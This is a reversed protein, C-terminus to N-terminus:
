CEKGVRREESRTVPREVVAGDARKLPENNVPRPQNNNQQQQPRPQNNNQPKNQNNFQPKPQNNNALKNQNNNGSNNNNNYSPKNNQQPRNQNQPRSQNNFQPKPQNNLQPKPQAPQEVKPAVTEAKPQAIPEAKAEGKTLYNAFDGSKAQKTYHEFAVNCQVETLVTGKKIETGLMESLEPLATKANLNFDELLNSAKYKIVM